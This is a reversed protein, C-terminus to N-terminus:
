KMNNRIFDNRIESITSNKPNKYIGLNTVLYNIKKLSVKEFLPIKLTKKFATYNIMYDLSPPEIGAKYSECIAYVPRKLNTACEVLIKTGIKNVIYGKYVGDSGTVVADSLQIFFCISSDPIIYVNSYKSYENFAKDFENGPKSEMLYVTDIESNKILSLVASSFSITVFSKINLNKLFIKLSKNANNKYKKLRNVKIKLEHDNNVKSVVEAINSLTAMPRISIVKNIVKKLDKYEALSLLELTKDMYWSSGNTLDSEMVEINKEIIKKM